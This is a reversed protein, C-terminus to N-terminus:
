ETFLPQSVCSKAGHKPEGVSQVGASWSCRQPEVAPTSNLSVRPPQNASSASYPLPNDDAPQGGPVGPKQLYVGCVVMSTTRPIAIPGCVLNVSRTTLRSLWSYM